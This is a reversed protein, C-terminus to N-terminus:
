EWSCKGVKKYHHYEKCYLKKNQYHNIGFHEKFKIGFESRPVRHSESRSPNNKAFLRCYTIQNHMNQTRSTLRLNTINNNLKNTDIHDIEFNDPVLGNFTEWILRHLSITKTQGNVRVSTWLYGSGNKSIKCPVLKETFKDFRYVNYDSDLYREYMENFKM